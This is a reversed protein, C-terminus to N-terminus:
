GAVSLGIQDSPSEPPTLTASTITVTVIADKKYGEDQQEVEEIILVDDVAIFTQQSHDFHFYDERNETVTGPNNEGGTNAKIDNASARRSITRVLAHDDDDSNDYESWNDSATDESDLEEHNGEVDDKAPEDLVVLTEKQLPSPKHVHSPEELPSAIEDEDDNIDLESVLVDLFNAHGQNM